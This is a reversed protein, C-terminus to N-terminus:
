KIAFKVPLIYSGDENSIGMEAVPITSVLNIVVKDLSASVGELLEIGQIQGDVINFTVYVTGQEHNEIAQEPYAVHDNVWSSITSTAKPKDGFDNAKSSYSLTLVLITTMLITKM